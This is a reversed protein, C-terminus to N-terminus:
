VVRRYSKSILNYYERDHKECLYYDLNDFPELFTILESLEGIMICSVAIKGCDKKSCKFERKDM